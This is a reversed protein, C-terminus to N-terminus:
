TPSCAKAEPSDVIERLVTMAQDLRAIQHVHIGDVSERLKNAAPIIAHTYGLKVAEKLRAEPATVARIEGVLGVEGFVVLKEPLPKGQLSSYAALLAALDAAPETLRIGGVVKLYVNQDWAIIGMHKNLVALLMQLRSTDLGTAHRKANPSITEEVLAQVEVLFPRHGEMASLVCTGAVPKEHPTLFLASPNLVEELGIGVMQFVGMEDVRGFRNKVARLMRFPSGPDGEFQLVCDVMHELMKPGAITGDKTVHGIMLVSIGSSKGLRTLVTGCDKLQTVSGPSSDSMATYMTQISDVILVDANLAEAERVIKDLDIEAILKLNSHAQLGLREARLAVQSPSEEGTAYLVTNSRAIADAAQLLLTSKGVGPEGGLLVVSGRVLGGGGLVRNLEGINTDYRVSTEKLEIARLDQVASERGTWSKQRPNATASEKSEVSEVLTNWQKCGTCQGMMKAHTTGCETCHYVIKTKPM